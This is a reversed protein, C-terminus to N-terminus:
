YKPWRSRGGVITIISACLAAIGCPIATWESSGLSRVTRPWFDGASSGSNNDGLLQTRNGSLWLAPVTANVYTKPSREEQLSSCRGDGIAVLYARQHGFGSALDKLSSESLRNQNCIWCSMFIEPKAMVYVQNKGFFHEVEKKTANEKAQQSFSGVNESRTRNINLSRM